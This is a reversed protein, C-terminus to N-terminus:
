GYQALTTRGSLAGQLGGRGVRDAVLAVEAMAVLLSALGGLGNFLAVFEPMQTMPVRKALVFGLGSGIALAPAAFAWSQGSYKGGSLLEWMTAAIALAMGLAAVLNGRRATKVKGLFRIGMIFLASSVM